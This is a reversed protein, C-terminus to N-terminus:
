MSSNAMGILPLQDDAPAPQVFAFLEAMAGAMAVAPCHGCRELYSLSM